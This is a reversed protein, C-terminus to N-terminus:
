KKNLWTEYQLWDENLIKEGEEASIKKRTTKRMYNPSEAYAIADRFDEKACQTWRKVEEMKGNALKLIALHVRSSGQEWSEIGYSSLISKIETCQAASFDRLIIREVDEEAVVPIPQSNM